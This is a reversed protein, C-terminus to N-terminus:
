RIDPFPPLEDKERLVRQMRVATEIGRYYGAVQAIEAFGLSRYFSRADTNIVRLELRIAAIGATRASTELWEILRRGLGRRQHSERVALLSLHAYEEGFQMIAFGVMRAGECAVLTLTDRDSIARAVRAPTWSWGLGTEILERSLVAIEAADAPGAIRLTIEAQSRPKM